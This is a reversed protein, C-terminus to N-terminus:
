NRLFISYNIVSGFCTDYTNISAFIKVLNFNIRNFKEVFIHMVVFCRSMIPTNFNVVNVKISTSM